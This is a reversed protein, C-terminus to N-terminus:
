TGSITATENCIEPGQWTWSEFLNWTGLWFCVGFFQHLFLRITKLFKLSKKKKPKALDNPYEREEESLPPSVLEQLEEEKYVGGEAM